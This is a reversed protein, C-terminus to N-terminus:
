VPSEATPVISGPYLVGDGERALHLDPNTVACFPHEARAVYQLDFVQIALPVNRPGHFLANGDARRQRDLVDAGNSDLPM